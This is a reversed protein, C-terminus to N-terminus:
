AVAVALRVALGLRRLEEPQDLVAVARQGGDVRRADGADGRIQSGLDVEVRARGPRCEPRQDQGCLVSVGMALIRAQSNMAAAIKTRMRQTCRPVPPKTWSSIPRAASARPRQAALHANQGRRSSGRLRTRWWRM